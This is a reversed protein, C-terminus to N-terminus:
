IVCGLILNWLNGRKRIPALSKRALSFPVCRNHLVGSISWWELVKMWINWSFICTFLIHTNTKVELNCFPCLANVTDIVGKNM